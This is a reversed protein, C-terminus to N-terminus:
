IYKYKNLDRNVQNLININAPNGTIKSLKNKLKTKNPPSIRPNSDINKM